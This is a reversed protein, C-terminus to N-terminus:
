GGEPEKHEQAIAYLRDLLETAGCDAASLEDRLTQLHEAMGPLRNIEAQRKRADLDYVALRVPMLLKARLELILQRAEASSGNLVPM